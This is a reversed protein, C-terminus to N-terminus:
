AGDFLERQREVVMVTGSQLKRRGEGDWTGAREQLTREYFGLLVEHVL